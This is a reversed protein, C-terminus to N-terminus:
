FVLFQDKCTSHWLRAAYHRRMMAFTRIATERNPTSITYLKRSASIYTITFM